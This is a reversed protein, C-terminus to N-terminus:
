SGSHCMSVYHANFISNRGSTTREFSSIYRREVFKGRVISDRCCIMWPSYGTDLDAASKTGSNLIRHTRTDARLHTDRRVIFRALSSREPVAFILIQEAVRECALTELDQLNAERLTVEKASERHSLAHVSQREAAAAAHFVVNSGSSLFSDLYMPPLGTRRSPFGLADPIKSVTREAADACIPTTEDAHSALNAGRFCM